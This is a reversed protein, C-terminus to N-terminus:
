VIGNRIAYAIIDANSKFGTKELIRTRYTSVTKVSLNLAYAIESVARGAAILRFVEFERASLRAHPSDSNGRILEMAMQATIEESVYVRGAAVKEIAELIEELSRDKQIYGNAGARLARIAYQEEAHMSLMLVPLSPFEPRLTSLVDLGSRDGLTVDLVLVDCPVRRVVDFVQDANSAEAVVKWDPRTAIMLQLGRRVIAHDDAIIVRM